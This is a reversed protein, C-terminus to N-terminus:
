LRICNLASFLSLMVQEEGWREQVHVYGVHNDFGCGAGGYKIGDIGCVSSKLGFFTWLKRKHRKWPKTWTSGFVSCFACCVRSSGKRKTLHAFVCLLYFYGQFACSSIKRDLFADLDIFRWSCWAPSRTRQVTVPGPDKFTLCCLGSMLNLMLALFVGTLKFSLCM